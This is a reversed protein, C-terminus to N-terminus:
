TRAILFLQACLTEDDGLHCYFARIPILNLHDRGEEIVSPVDNCLMEWHSRLKMKIHSLLFFHKVIPSADNILIFVHISNDKFVADTVKSMSNFNATQIVDKTNLQISIMRGFQFGFQTPATNNTTSAAGEKCM